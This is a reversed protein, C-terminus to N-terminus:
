DPPASGTNSRKPRFVREPEVPAARKTGRIFEVADGREVIQIIVSQQGVVRPPQVPVPQPREFEEPPPVNAGAFQYAGFGVVVLAVATGIVVAPKRQQVLFISAVALSLFVAAIMSRPDTAGPNAAGENSAPVRFGLADEAFKRPIVLRNTSSKRDVKIVLPVGSEANGRKDRSPPRSAPNFPLLDAAASSAFGVLMVITLLRATSSKM